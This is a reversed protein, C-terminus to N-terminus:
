TCTHLTNPVLILDHMFCAKKPFKDWVYFQYLINIEARSVNKGDISVNGTKQDFTNVVFM